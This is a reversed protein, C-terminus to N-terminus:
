HKLRNAAKPKEGVAPLTFSFCAGHGPRGEAEVEGGHREIIRRVSALGVGTGEFDKQPHLRQFPQFLRSADAPDFGAGNDRVFFTRTANERSTAGVEIHADPCRRTFKWANSLLNELVLRVLAPDGLADMEETQITVTVARDPERDELETVITQAIAALDIAQAHIEARAVRSLALLDDVLRSARLSEQRLRRLTEQDEPRLAAAADEELIRSLYEMGRLPARLDHSVTYSFAELERNAAELERVRRRLAEVEGEPDTPPGLI